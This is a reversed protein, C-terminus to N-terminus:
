DRLLLHIEEHSADQWTEKRQTPWKMWPANDNDATDEWYTPYSSLPHDSPRKLFAWSSKFGHARLIEIDYLFTDKLTPTLYKPHFKLPVRQFEVCFIKGLCQFIHMKNVALIKLARLNLLMYAKKFCWLAMESM